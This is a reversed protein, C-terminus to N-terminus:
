FIRRGGDGVELVHFGAELGTKEKYVKGVNAIFADVADEKVISVTNGGWGGGTERAGVCGPQKRSEDVLVDIEECTADYDFRLGDGSENLLQGFTLIDNNRLAKVAEKTRNEEYVAFAARQACVKDKILHRYDNFKKPDLECLEKINLQTRLDKLARECEKRRDNYHSSTLSHKKNSNVVLIKYGELKLPVYEYQLTACDLFIAMDKKGMASAFQDMIGCNMGNFKNESYQCMQSIKVMDIGFNYYDNLMVAIVVEMAASSSLGSGPINGYIYIDFGNEIHYCEKEFTWMVGKPYNTWFAAKSYVLDDLSSEYIGGRPYNASYFRLKRDNRKRVVAYNGNTLACPFVHGGNYDIHEGILNVRGPGMYGRIEGEEGYVKKFGALLENEIM